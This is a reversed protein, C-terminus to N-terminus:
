ESIILKKSILKGAINLRLIYMGSMSKQKILQKNVNVVYNCDTVYGDFVEVVRRGSMDYVSANVFSAEKLNLAISFDDVVPNPRIQFLDTFQQDETIGVGTPEYLLSINNFYTENPITPNVIETGKTFTYSYSPGPQGGSASNRSTYEVWVQYDGDVVLNGLLDRCDWSVTHTTHNNLTSGTIADASNNGSNAVWKVLHQKRQNAMVKRSIVFNGNADKIWIALVNKPSYTAGNSVTLVSFTLNGDTSEINNSEQASILSSSFAFIFIFLLKKM